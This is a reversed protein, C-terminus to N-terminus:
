KPDSGTETGLHSKVDSKKLSANGPILHHAGPLLDKGNGSVLISYLPSAKGGTLNKGLTGSHNRQDNSAEPDSGGDEEENAELQNEDGKETEKCFYCSDKTHQASLAVNVMEGIETM